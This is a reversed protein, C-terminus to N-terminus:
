RGAQNYSKDIEHTIANFRKDIQEIEQERQSMAFRDRETIGSRLTSM